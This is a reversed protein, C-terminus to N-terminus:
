NDVGCKKATDGSFTEWQHIVDNSVKGSRAKAAYADPKSMSLIIDARLEPSASMAADARCGCPGKMSPSIKVCANYYEAREAPTGMVVSASSAAVAGSVWGGALLGLVAGVLVVQRMMM